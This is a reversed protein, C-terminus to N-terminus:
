FKGNKWDELILNVVEEAAYQSAELIRETPYNASSASSYWSALEDADFAKAKERGAHREKTLELSANLYYFKVNELGCLEILQDFIERYRKINM